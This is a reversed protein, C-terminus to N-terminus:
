CSEVGKENIYYITHRKLFNMEYFFKLLSKSVLLNEATIMRIDYLSVFPDSSSTPTLVAKKIELYRSPTLHVSECFTRESSGLKNIDIDSPHISLQRWVLSCERVKSDDLFCAWAEGDSSTAPRFVFKRRGVTLTAEIIMEGHVLHRPELFIKEIKTLPFVKQPNTKEPRGDNQINCLCIELHLPKSRVFLFGKEPGSNTKEFWTVRTGYFLYSAIQLKLDEVKKDGALIDSASRGTQTTLDEIKAQPDESTQEKSNILNETDQALPTASPSTQTQSNVPTERNEEDQEEAQNARLEEIEKDKQKLEKTLLANGEGNRLQRNEERLKIMEESLKMYDDTIRRLSRLEQEQSEIRAQLLQNHKQFCASPDVRSDEDVEALFMSSTVTSSYTSSYTKVLSHHIKIPITEKWNEGIELILTMEDFDNGADWDEVSVTVQTHGYASITGETPSCSVIAPHTVRAGFEVEESSDSTLVVKFSKDDEDTFAISKCSAQFAM